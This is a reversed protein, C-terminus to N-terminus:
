RKLLQLAGVAAELNDFKQGLYDELRVRNEYKWDKLPQNKDILLKVVAFQFNYILAHNNRNLHDTLKNVEDIMANSDLCLIRKINEPSLDVKKKIKFREYNTPDVFYFSDEEFSKRLNRGSENLLIKFNEVPIYKEEDCLFSYHIRDDNTAMCNGYINRSGILIEEDEDKKQATQSQALLLANFQAQM